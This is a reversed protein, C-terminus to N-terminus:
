YCLLTKFHAGATSSLKNNKLNFDVAEPVVPPVSDKARFERKVPFGLQIHYIFKGYNGAYRNCVPFNGLYLSLQVTIACM